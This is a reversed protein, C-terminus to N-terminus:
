RGKTRVVLNIGATRTMATTQKIRINGLILNELTERHNCIACAQKAQM